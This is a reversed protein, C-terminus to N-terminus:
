CLESQSHFLLSHFWAGFKEPLAWASVDKFLQFGALGILIQFLVGVSQRKAHVFGISQNATELLMGGM